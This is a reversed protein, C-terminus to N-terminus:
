SSIDSPRDILTRHQHEAGVTGSPIRRPTPVPTVSIVCWPVLLSRLAEVQRRRELALGDPGDPITPKTQTQSRRPLDGAFHGM